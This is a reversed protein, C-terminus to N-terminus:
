RHKRFLKRLSGCREKIVQEENKKKLKELEKECYQLRWVENQLDNIKENLVKKEYLSYEYGAVMCQNWKTCEKKRKVFIEAPYYATWSAPINYMYVREWNESFRWEGKFVYDRSNHLYVMGSDKLIKDFLDLYYDVHTQGMEQMSSINICCDYLYQNRKAFHWAPIIYVDFKNLDFEDGLYYFGVSKNSLMKKLYEFSYLISGPVADILVYKVGSTISMLAEALRGYGGGTELIYKENGMATKELGACIMNLEAITSLDSKKYDYKDLGQKKIHEFIGLFDINSLFEEESELDEKSLTQLGKCGIWADLMSTANSFQSEMTNDYLDAVSSDPIALDDATDDKAVLHWHNIPSLEGANERMDAVIKRMLKKDLCLKEFDGEQRNIFQRNVIEM